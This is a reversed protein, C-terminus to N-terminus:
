KIRGYKKLAERVKDLPIAEITRKEKGTVTTARFLSNLIAEETAEIVAQFLPSMAENGVVSVNRVRENANIRNVTSFAIAYDGSGNTFSSGTRGLGIM